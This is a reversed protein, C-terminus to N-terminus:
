RARGHPGRQRLPGDHRLAPLPRRGPLLELGHPLASSVGSSDRIRDHLDYPGQSAGVGHRGRQRPHQRAGRHAPDAHGREPPEAPLRVRAPPEPQIGPFAVFGPASIRLAGLLPRRLGPHLWRRAPKGPVIKSIMQRSACARGCSGPPKRPPVTAAFILLAGLPGLACSKWGGAGASSRNWLARGPLRFSGYRDRLNGHLLRHLPEAEAGDVNDSLAKLGPMYTGALGIGGSLRLAAATWSGRPSGDSFSCPFSSGPLRLAPLDAPRRGPRDAGRPHAIHRRLRRLLRRQDLRGGHQHAEMRGPLLTAPGPLVHDGDHVLTEALCILFYM